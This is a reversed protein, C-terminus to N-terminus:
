RPTPGSGALWEDLTPPRPKRETKATSEAPKEAAAAKPARKTATPERNLALETKAPASKRASPKKAAVETKAATPKSQEPERKAIVPKALAETRAVNVPPTVTPRLPEVTVAAAEPLIPPAQPAVPLLPPPLAEPARAIVLGEPAPEASRVSMARTPHPADGVLPTLGDMRALAWFAGAGASLLAGVVVTLTVLAVRRGGGAPGRASFEPADPEAEPEFESDAWDDYDDGPLTAFAAPPRVLRTARSALEWELRDALLGDKRAQALKLLRRLDGGTLASVNIGPM